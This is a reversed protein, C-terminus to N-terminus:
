ATRKFPHTSPIKSQAEAMLRARAERYKQPDRIKALEDRQAPSLNLASGKSDADSTPAASNTPLDKGLEKAVEDRLKGKAKGLIDAERQRAKEVSADIEEPTNGTVLEALEIGAERVKKERYLRLELDSTQRRSEAKVAELESDKIKLKEELASLRRETKEQESLTSNDKELLKNRLEDAEAKIKLLEKEKEEREGKLKNLEPYLKNKEETRVQELLKRHEDKSIVEPVTVKPDQTTATTTSAGQAPTTPTTNQTPATDTNM